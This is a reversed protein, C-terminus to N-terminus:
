FYAVGLGRAVVGFESVSRRHGSNSRSYARRTRGLRRETETDSSGEALLRRHPCALTHRALWSYDSEIAEDRAVCWRRNSAPGSVAAPPRSDGPLSRTRACFVEPPTMLSALM